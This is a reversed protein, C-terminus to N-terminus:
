AIPANGAHNKSPPKEEKSIDSTLVPENYTRIIMTTTNNLVDRM